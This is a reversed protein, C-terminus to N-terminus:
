QCPTDIMGDAAVSYKRCTGGTTAAADATTTTSSTEIKDSSTKEITTTTKSNDATVAPVDQASPLRDGKKLVTKDADQTVTQQATEAAAIKEAKQQQLAIERARERKASAIALARQRERERAAIAQRERMREYAEERRREEAAHSMMSMAAMGGLFFGMRRGPFAEATSTLSSTIVALSILAAFLKSMPAEKPKTTWMTDDSADLRQGAPCMHAMDLFSKLFAASSFLVLNVADSCILYM